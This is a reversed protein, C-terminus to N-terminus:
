APATSYEVLEVEIGDPDHFYLRRGPDYDAESHPEVGLDRLRDRAADLDDVVFGFHNLGVADYSVPAMAPAPASQFMAIYHNEDGVHAAAPLDDAAERRWRVEYGLLRRYFDVSRDLDSVTLNVHELHM